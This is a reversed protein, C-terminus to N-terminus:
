EQENWRIIQYEQSDWYISDIIKYENDEKIIIKDGVVPPRAKVLPESISFFLIAVLLFTWAILMAVYVLFERFEPVLLMIFCTSCLTAFLAGAIILYLHLNCIFM